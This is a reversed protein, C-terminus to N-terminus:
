RFLSLFWAWFSPKPSPKTPTPAPLALRALDPAPAAQVAGTREVRPALQEGKGCTCKKGEIYKPRM